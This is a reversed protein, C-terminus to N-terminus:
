FVWDYHVRYKIQSSSNGIVSSTPLSSQFDDPFFYVGGMADAGSNGDYDYLGVAVKNHTEGVYVPLEGVLYPYETGLNCQSYYGTTTAVSGNVFVKLFIDPRVSNADWAGGNPPYEPWEILDIRTIYVGKPTKAYQCESGYFGDPCNCDGNVCTGGNQCNVGYCPDYNQCRPGSYGPPCDCAGHNCSGGNYCTVGECPDPIMDDGGGILGGEEESCATFILCCSIVACTAIKLFQDNLILRLM